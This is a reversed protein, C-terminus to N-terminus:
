RNWPTIEIGINVIPPDLSKQGSLYLGRQDFAVSAVLSPIVLVASLPPRQAIYM